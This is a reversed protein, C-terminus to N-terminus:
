SIRRAQSTAVPTRTAAGREEEVAVEEAEVELDDTRLGIARGRVAADAEAEVEAEARGLDVGRGSVAELGGMEKVLSYIQLIISTLLYGTMIYITKQIPIHSFRPFPLLQIIVLGSLFIFIALVRSVIKRISYEEPFYLDELYAISLISLVGITSLFLKLFFQDGRWPINIVCLLVTLPLFSKWFPHDFGSNLGVVVLCAYSFYMDQYSVLTM